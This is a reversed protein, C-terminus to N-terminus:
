DDQGYNSRSEVYWQGPTEGFHRLLFAVEHEAVVQSEDQISPSSLNIKPSATGEPVLSGRMFSNNTTGMPIEPGAPNLIFNINNSSHPVYGASLGTPRLYEFNATAAAASLAELGSAQTSAMSYYKERIQEIQPLLTVLPQQEPEPTDEM